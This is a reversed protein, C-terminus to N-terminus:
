PSQPREFDEPTASGDLVRAERRAADRAAIVLKHVLSNADGPVGPLDYILTPQDHAAAINNMLGCMGRLVDEVDKHSGSSLPEVRGLAHDLDQHALNKDRYDRAFQAATLVVQLDADVQARANPNEVAGSLACLSMNEFKKQKAPDTLRAIHLLVGEWLVRQVVHFFYPATENLLEVRAESGGFLACYEFWKNHLWLLESSLVDYLRGLDEGYVSVYEARVDESWRSITM